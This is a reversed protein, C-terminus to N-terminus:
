DESPTRGAAIAGSGFRARVADMARSLQRDRETEVLTSADGFLALQEGRGDSLSTLAVSLLRAPVRRKRRLRGLLERAVALVARDSEIPLDLTRSASRNTFDHDRIRVTVTRAVLGEDRLDASARSALLQLERALGADDAIDRPFTEDRSISKAEDRPSVASGDVGSARDWLWRAEREGLIGILSGLDRGLVDPVTELGAAVLREAFRPGVQPIEALRFQNMFLQEEGAPVILVGSSDSGPRPKGREAALKAILKATGGGVTVSIGTAAKVEDRICHATLELPEDHYVGETGTMDLYWEDISATEVVPAFRELVARIEASKRSCGKRPVPVVMADPCLRVARAMPMGSRVGFARAPYSASCVVGRSEPTGGVLLLEARGAGEPDAMRAVAVYFADADVLLIRRPRESPAPVTPHPPSRDSEITVSVEIAENVYRLLGSIRRTQWLVGIAASVRTANRVPSARPLV